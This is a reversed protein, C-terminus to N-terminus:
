TGLACLLLMTKYPPFQLTRHHERERNGDLSHLCKHLLITNFKKHLLESFASSTAGSAFLKPINYIYTHTHTRSNVSTDKWSCVIRDGGVNRVKFNCAFLQFQLVMDAVTKKERWKVRVFCIFHFRTLIAFRVLYKFTTPTQLDRSGNRQYHKKNQTPLM